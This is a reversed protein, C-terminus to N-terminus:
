YRCLSLSGGLLRLEQHEADQLCVERTRLPTFGCLATYQSETNRTPTPALISGTSAGLPEEPAKRNGTCSSRSWPASGLWRSPSPFVGSCRPLHRALQWSLSRSPSGPTRCVGLLSEQRRPLAQTGPAASGKPQTWPQGWGSNTPQAGLLASKVVQVPEAAARGPSTGARHGVRVM